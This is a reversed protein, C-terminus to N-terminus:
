GKGEGEGALEGQGEGAFRLDRASRIPLAAARSLSLDWANSGLERLRSGFFFGDLNRLIM